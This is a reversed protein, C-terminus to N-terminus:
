ALRKIVRWVRRPGALWRVRRLYFGALARATRLRWTPSATTLWVGDRRRRVVRALVAEFPVRFDRHGPLSDGRIVFQGQQRDIAVVRRTPFKDEFRYTVIDGIRVAQCTVPETQVEDGDRLIPLMTFGHFRVPHRHSSALQVEMAALRPDRSMEM